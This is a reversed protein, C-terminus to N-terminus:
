AKKVEEGLADWTDKFVEAIREQMRETEKCGINRFKTYMLIETERQVEKLAKFRRDMLLVTLYQKRNMAEL